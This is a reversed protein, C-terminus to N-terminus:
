RDLAFQRWLRQLRGACNVILRGARRGIHSRRARQAIQAMHHVNWHVVAAGIGAIEQDQVLPVIQFPQVLEKSVRVHLFAAPHNEALAVRHHPLRRFAEERVV